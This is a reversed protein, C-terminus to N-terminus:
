RSAAYVPALRPSSSNRRHDLTTRSSTSGWMQILPAVTITRPRRTSPVVLVPRTRRTLRTRASHLDQTLVGLALRLLALEHPSRTGGAVPHEPHLHPRGQAVVEGALQHPCREKPHIAFSLDQRRDPEVVQPVRMGRQQELVAFRDMDHSLGEAM